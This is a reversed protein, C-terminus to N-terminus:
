GHLVKELVDDVTVVGILKGDKQVPLSFLNYKSALEAVKAAPDEPELPAPHEHMLADVPAEPAALLLDRLSLVGLLRLDRQVVFCDHVQPIERAQERVAQLAQQASMAPSLRLYETNMMGGASDEDFTLLQQVERAEPAEMAALIEKSEDPPLESLLDAAADPEMEEVIDAAREPEVMRLLERQLGPQSEELADAAYEVPLDRFLVARERRDLDELIEALDSPHVDAIARRALDLRVKSTGASLPQVHKWPVFQEKRLYPSGPRLRRFASDVVSQWGM